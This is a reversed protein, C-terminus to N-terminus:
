RLMAVYSNLPVGISDAVPQCKAVLCHFVRGKAPLESLTEWYGMGKAFVLEAAEYEREYVHLHSLEHAHAHANSHEHM